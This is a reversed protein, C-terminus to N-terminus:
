GADSGFTDLVIGGLFFVPGLPSVFFMFWMSPSQDSRCSDLFGSSVFLACHSNPAEDTIRWEENTALSDISLALLLFTFLRLLRLRSSPYEPPLLHLYYTSPPHPLFRIRCLRIAAEYGRLGPPFSGATSM